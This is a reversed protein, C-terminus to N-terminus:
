NYPPEIRSPARRRRRVVLGIILGLLIILSLYPLIVRIFGIIKDWLSDTSGDDQDKQQTTPGPGTAETLPFIKRTIPDYYFKGQGNDFAWELASDDDYNGIVVTSTIGDDPDWYVDPSTNNNTDIFFDTFGDGDGDVTDVVSSSGDPDAFDEFGDTADDNTDTATEAKGDSDIDQSVQNPTTTPETTTTGGGRTTVVPCDDTDGYPCDGYTSSGYPAAFAPLALWFVLFLVPALYSTLRHRLSRHM